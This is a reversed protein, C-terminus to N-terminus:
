TFVFTGVRTHGDYGRYIGQMFRMDNFSFPLVRTEGKRLDTRTCMGSIFAIGTTGCFNFVTSPDDDPATLPPGLVHFM